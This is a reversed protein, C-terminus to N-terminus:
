VEGRVDKKKCAEEKGGRMGECGGGCVGGGMM